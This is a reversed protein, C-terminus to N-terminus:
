IYTTTPTHARTPGCRVLLLALSDRLQLVRQAPRLPLQPSRVLQRRLPLRLPLLLPVSERVRAESERAGAVLAYGQAAVYDTLLLAREKGRERRGEKGGERRREKGGERM